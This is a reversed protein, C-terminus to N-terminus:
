CHANMTFAAREYHHRSASIKRCSLLLYAITLITLNLTVMLQNAIVMLTGLLFNSVHRGYQQLRCKGNKILEM